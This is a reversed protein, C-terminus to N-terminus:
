AAVAWVGRSDHVFLNSMQLTQRIKAQWNMNSKAKEHGEIESYIEELSANRGIKKLAAYVVDRWTSTKSDRTDMEYKQPLQFNILYPALKKLVMIYEHVIPVFNRNTYTRGDSVCNHQAKIIVQELEGPKVIDTFMSHFGGRRVDGMLISMRAGPEMASYYKMVIENLTKMFIDWPMQGLDSKSLEGTPDKYMSGAYPIKIEAGYPPHMFIQDAGYFEEPVEDTVANVNLIGPRVPNPNLDAGVYSIGMDKTVDYGTGSGAFLESFKKTHYKWMLFAQIWGSCNGRWKRDGWPGRDEFSLLTSDNQQCRAIIDNRNM